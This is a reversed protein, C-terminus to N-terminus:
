RVLPYYEDKCAQALDSLRGLFITRSTSFTSEDHKVHVAEPHVSQEIYAVAGIAVVYRAADM